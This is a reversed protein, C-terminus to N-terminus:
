CRNLDATYVSVCGANNWVKAPLISEPYGKISGSSSVEINKINKDELAVGLYKVAKDFNPCEDIPGDYNFVVMLTKGKLFYDAGSVKMASCATFVAKWVAESHYEKYKSFLM